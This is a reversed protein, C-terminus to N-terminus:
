NLHKQTKKKFTKFIKKSINRLFGPIKIGSKYKVTYIYLEINHLIPLFINSFIVIKQFSKRSFKQIQKKKFLYLGSCSCHVRIIIWAWREHTFLPFERRSNVNHASVISSLFFFFFPFLLFSGPATATQGHLVVHPPSAPPQLQNCTASYSSLLLLFDAPSLSPGITYAKGSTLLEPLWQYHLCHRFSPPQFPPPRLGRHLSLSLFSLFITSVLSFPQNKASKPGSKRREWAM